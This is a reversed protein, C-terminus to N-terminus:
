ATAKKMHKHLDWDIRKEFDTLTSRGAPSARREAVIMVDQHAALCLLAYYKEPTSLL